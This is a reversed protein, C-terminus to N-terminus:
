PNKASKATRLAFEGSTDKQKLYEGPLLKDASLLLLFSTNKQITPRTPPALGGYRSWGYHALRFYFISKFKTTEVCLTEVVPTIGGM